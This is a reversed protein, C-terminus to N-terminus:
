GRGKNARMGLQRDVEALKSNKLHSRANVFSSSVQSYKTETAITEVAVWAPYHKWLVELITAECKGLKDHIWIESIKKKMWALTPKKKLVIEKPARLLRIRAGGGEIWQGTRLDSVSNVFSSSQISYGSFISLQEISGTGGLWALTELLTRHCKGLSQVEMETAIGLMAQIEDATEFDTRAEPRDITRAHTYGQESSESLPEPIHPPPMSLPARKQKLLLDSINPDKEMENLRQVVPAVAADIALAISEIMKKAAAELALVFDGWMEQNTPAVFITPKKKSPRSAKGSKRKTEGPVFEDGEKWRRWLEDLVPEPKKQEKM